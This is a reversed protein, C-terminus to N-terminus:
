RLVRYRLFIAGSGFRREETLDLNMRGVSSPLFPTGGGIVVPMVYTAIEEVLGAAIFASALSPGSVGISGPISEALSRIVGPDFERTLRTRTTSVDPLTTSIVLKEMRKWERAFEKEVDSSGPEDGLTEWAAMVEYMRRGYIDLGSQKAENNAFSHIEEDVMVWDINGNADSIYGDLSQMMSYAIRGM